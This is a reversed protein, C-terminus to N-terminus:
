TSITSSFTFNFIVKFARDQPIYYWTTWHFKVSTESFCTAEMKLASSYNSGVEHQNRAQRARQSQLHLQYTGGFHQNDKV